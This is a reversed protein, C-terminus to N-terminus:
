PLRLSDTVENEISAVPDRCTEPAPMDVFGIVRRHSRLPFSWAHTNTRCASIYERINNHGTQNHPM